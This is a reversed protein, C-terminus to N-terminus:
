ARFVIGRVMLEFEVEQLFLPDHGESRLHIRLACLVFDSSRGLMKRTEPGIPTKRAMVDVTATAM